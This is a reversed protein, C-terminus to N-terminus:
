LLSTLTLREGDSVVITGGRQDIRVVDPVARVLREWVERHPHGYRNFAGASVIAISPSAADLLGQSSSTRSGHHPVKLVDADLNVRSAVIAQEAHAEIDGTFLFSRRGHDIRLVISNDNPDHGPDYSPCPWLVSLRAAGHVRADGCLETPRLVSTGSSRLSALLQSFEAASDEDDGQGSDWVEGISIGAAVVARLGGYHDPHPHTIVAIDIHERRRARLLPVLVFKGPDRGGSPNGGADILMLKGDPLDVLASDGQGVDLFTVRVVDHPQETLRVHAEAATIGILAVVCLVTRLRLDPLFLLSLAVVTLLLGQTSTLPPPTFGPGRALMECAAVFADIVWNLLPATGVGVGPLLTSLLAHLTAMPILLVSTLPVLLLNAIISVLPLAGFTWLVLPATAILARWTVSVADGLQQLWSREGEARESVSVIAATAAISLAFGVNWVNSPTAVSLIIAALAGVAAASPRRGAAVLGWAVVATVAARWASPSGGALPAYFLALPIGTACAIRRVDWRLALPTRLLVRRLLGVLLGVVITVHLGSVALVHSVGAARVNDSDARDVARSEGLVLARAVGASRKSLTRQLAARIASRSSEILASLFDHEIVQVGAAESIWATGTAQLPDPLTPHPTPNRFPQEPKLQALVAVRAGVPLASPATLLRTGPPVVAQDHVREGSVVRVRGLVTNDSGHRMDEVDVVLRCLGAPPIPSRQQVATACGALCAAVGLAWTWRSAHELSHDVLARAVLLAAIGLTVLALGGSHLSPPLTASLALGLLWGSAVMVLASM